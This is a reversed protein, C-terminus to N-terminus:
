VMPSILNLTAKSGDPEENRLDSPSFGFYSHFHTYFYNINQYGVQKAILYVKEPSQLIKTKAQLLRYIMLYESFKLHTEKYFIQGLYNSNMKFMDAIVKLNLNKGYDSKVIMIVKCTLNSLESYHLNLVPDIDKDTECDKPLTGHLDEVIIREVARRLEDQDIPKIIYDKAGAQMAKKAYEFEDYGSVMICKIPLALSRFENIMDYGRRDDLRVDIIGLQPRESIAKQIAVSYSVASDIVTIGYTAWDLILKIGEIIKPEDDVILMRYM